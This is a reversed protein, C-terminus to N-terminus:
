EGGGGEKRAEPAGSYFTKPRTKSCTLACVSGLCQPPPPYLDLHLSITVPSKKTEAIERVVAGVGGKGVGGVM